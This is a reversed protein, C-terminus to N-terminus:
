QAEATLLAAPIRVRFTTGGGLRSEVQCEGGMAKVHSNVLCLGLGLHGDANRASDGRYFPQFINGLNEAPIGPGDDKVTIEAVDQRATASIEVTGGPRNYEIANSVLNMVVSRLRGPESRLTVPGDGCRVLRIHREAALPGALEACEGLLRAADFEVVQEGSPGEARVERMLAQVLQRLHRAEALCVQLSEALEDAPRPRRVAVEMTTIMAAVPTRLEHSADALFRRRQEFAQQLRQLMLNLQDAMPRLETPLSNTELRRDLSTENVTAVVGAARDIPRLAIRAIRAALVAAVMGALCGCISLALALRGLVRNLESASASYVVTAPETHGPVDVRLTVRRFPGEPLSVFGADLVVARAGDGPAGLGRGLTQDLKGKIVFRDQSFNAHNGGAPHGFEPLALVRNVISKDLDSTLIVRTTWWGTLGAVIIATWVTLLIAIAIRRRM